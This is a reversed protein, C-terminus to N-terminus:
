SLDPAGKAAIRPSNPAAHCQTCNLEGILLQGLEAPNVNKGEDRLRYYGPVVPEAARLAPALLLTTVLATFVRLAVTRSWGGDHMIQRMISQICGSIGLRCM